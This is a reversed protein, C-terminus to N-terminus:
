FVGIRTKKKFKNFWFQLGNTHSNTFYPRSHLYNTEAEYDTDKGVRFHPLHNQLVDLIVQPPEEKHKILHNYAKELLCLENFKQDVAPLAHTEAWKEIVSKDSETVSQLQKALEEHANYTQTHTTSIACALILMIKKM